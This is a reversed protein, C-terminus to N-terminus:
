WANVPSQMMTYTDCVGEPNDLVMRLEFQWHSFNGNHLHLQSRVLREMMAYTVLQQADGGDPLDYLDSWFHHVMNQQGLGLNTDPNHFLDIWRRQRRPYILLWDSWVLPEAAEALASRAMLHPVYGVVDFFKWNPFFARLLFLWRSRVVRSKFLLTGFLVMFYLVLLTTTM